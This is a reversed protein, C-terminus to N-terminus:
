GFLKVFRGAVRSSRLRSAVWGRLYQGADVGLSYYISALVDQPSVPRLAPDAGEKDSGCSRGAEFAEAPWRSAGSAPGTTAAAPQISALREVLNARPLSSNVRSSRATELDDILAGFARDLDPLLVRAYDDLTSFPSGGHCDWTIQNFVTRFMNVTVVRVGVEVLRM